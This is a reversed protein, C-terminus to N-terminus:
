NKRLKIIDRKTWILYSLLCIIIFQSIIIININKDLFSEKIMTTDFTQIDTGFQTYPSSEESFIIRNRPALGLIRLKNSNNSIESDIQMNLPFMNLLKKAGELTVIYGFLGYVRNFEIFNLNYDYTYKISTNHYGLFFLDFDLGLLNEEINKIRENFEDVLNIDDELILCRNIKKDVIKKYIAHHSLACGIGGITMTTYLRLNEQADKIAKDSILKRDIDEFDLKKGDIAPFRETISKLNHQKIINEMNKKRDQRRDLNIYIIKDFLM